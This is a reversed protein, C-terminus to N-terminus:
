RKHRPALARDTPVFYPVRGHAKDLLLLPRSGVNNLLLVNTDLPELREAAGALAIWETSGSELDIAALGGAAGDVVVVERESIAHVARASTIGNGAGGVTRVSLAGSLAHLLTVDGTASSGLVADDGGPLFAVSTAGPVRAIWTLGAAGNRSARYLSGDGAALLANQGAADLAFASIGGEAAALDVADLAQPADPLGTIFQLKGSSASYIAAVGASIALTMRSAPLVGDIASVQPTGSRLGRALMPRGDATADVVLAYDQQSAVAAMLIPFPLSLPAGLRAAGPLGEIPRLSQGRGDTVYGSVPGSIGSAQASVLAAVAIGCGSLLIRM